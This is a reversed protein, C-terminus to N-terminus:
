SIIFDTQNIRQPKQFRFSFHTGNSNDITTQAELKESFSKIIEMGLSDNSEPFTNFPIGCGDDSYSMLIDGNEESITVKILGDKKNVFAHKISNTILENIILGMPIVTEIDLMIPEISEKILITKNEEIYTDEIDQILDNFYEDISITHFNDKKYLKQHLLAMAQVRSQATRIASKSDREEVFRTQLSLLSSIVMLNNKVRHHIEKLLMKNTILSKEIIENKSKLAIATKNKQRYLNYLLSLALAVTALLIILYWKIKRQAELNHEKLKNQEELFAIAEENKEQDYKIDLHKIQNIVDQSYLEYYLSDLLIRYNLAKEFDKIEKYYDSHREYAELLSKNRDGEIAHNLLSPLISHAKQLQKTSLYYAVLKNEVRALMTPNNYLKACLYASDLYLEAKKFDKDVMALKAISSYGQVRTKYSKSTIWFNNVRTYYMRALSDNGLRELCRALQTTIPIHWRSDSFDSKLYNDMISYATQYDGIDMYLIGLRNIIDGSIPRGKDKWDLDMKYALNLAEIADVYNGRARELYAKKTLSSIWWRKNNVSSWYSICIDIYEEAEAFLGTNIYALSLSGLVMHYLSDKKQEKFIDRAITNYSIALAESHPLAKKGLDYYQNGIALSDSLENINSEDSFFEKYYEPTIKGKYDLILQANVSVASALVYLCGVIFTKLVRSLNEM